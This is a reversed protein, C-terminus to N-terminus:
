EGYKKFILSVNHGGFGLSNSMGYNITHQRNQNPVIDLDCEPDFTTYNITAPVINNKITLALIAAELAGSAGLLHGTNSKTSSVMVKTENGFVRKIAKTEGADNLHTSTGHANIYDIQSPSLNAMKLAKSMASAAGSGDELPATIHFADCSAGYGVIEAYIHANRKKAHSLEELVLVAAGEGMVFGSRNLDFPISAKNVDQETSLAKLAQFGSVGLPTIAAEAGGALMVNELGNLIRLYADGIANSGAACATVVSSVYGKCGQDIAVQGAAINALSKPIFYPSIRSPGSSIMTDENNAITEIGGIGSSIIAGFMSSDLSDKVISADSMAEYAAYRAFQSYKDSTRIAKPELYKEPEFNKVEAALKVKFNETNFHTIKDIGNRNELIGQWMENKNNGIPCVVGIGTIAVRRM